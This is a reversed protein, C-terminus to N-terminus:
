LTRKRALVTIFMIAIMVGSFVQPTLVEHLKAGIQPDGAATALQVLVGIFASAAIIIKSWVITASDKGAALTRQWFSGSETAWCYGFTGVIWLVLLAAIVDVAVLVYHLVQM